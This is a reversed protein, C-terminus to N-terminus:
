TAVGWWVQRAVRLSWAKVRDSLIFSPLFYCRCGGVSRFSEVSASCTCTQQDRDWMVFFSSKEMATATSLTNLESLGSKLCGWRRADEERLWSAAGNVVTNLCVETGQLEWCLLGGAGSSCPSKVWQLGWERVQNSLLLASISGGLLGACHGIWFMSLHFIGAVTVQLLHIVM